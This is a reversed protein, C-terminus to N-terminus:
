FNQFNSFRGGAQRIKRRFIKYDLDGIRFETKENQITKPSVSTDYSLESFNRISLKSNKNDVYQWLFCKDFYWVPVLTTKSCWLSILNHLNMKVM